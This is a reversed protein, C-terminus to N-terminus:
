FRFLTQSHRSFGILIKIGRHLSEKGANHAPESNGLGDVASDVIARRWYGKIRRVSHAISCSLSFKSSNLVNKSASM